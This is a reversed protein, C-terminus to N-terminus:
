TRSSSPSSSGRSGQSEAASGVHVLEVSVGAEIPGDGDGSGLEAAVQALLPRYRKGGARLLHQAIDTLFVDESMTVELLRREVGSMRDWVRPIPVLDIRRTSTISEGGRM